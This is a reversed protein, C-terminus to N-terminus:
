LGELKSKQGVARLQDGTHVDNQVFLGSAGRLSTKEASLRGMLMKVQQDWTETVKKLGSATEWGDFTRAAASTKDKAGDAAKKTHPELETEITNAAATKEAPTSGFVSGGGPALPGAPVGEVGNLRTGTSDANGSM